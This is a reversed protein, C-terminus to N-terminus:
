AVSAAARKTSSASVRQSQVNNLSKEFLNGYSGIKGGLKLPAMGMTNFVEKAIGIMQKFVGNAAAIERHLV